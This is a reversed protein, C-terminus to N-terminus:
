NKKQKHRLLEPYCLDRVIEEWLEEPGRECEDLVLEPSIAAMYWMGADIEKQLQGPGWGSHGFIVKGRFADLLRNGVYRQKLDEFGGVYVGPEGEIVTVADELGMGNHVLTLMNKDVPGGIYAPMKSLVEQLKPDITKADPTNKLMSLTSEQAKANIVTGFSGTKNDHKYLLVVTKKFDGTIVPSSVLVCGVEFHPLEHAWRSGNLHQYSDSSKEDIDYTAIMHARFARWDHEVIPPQNRPHWTEFIDDLDIGRWMNKGPGEEKRRGKSKGKSKPKEKKM